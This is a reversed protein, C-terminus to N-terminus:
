MTEDLEPRAIAARCDARRRPRGSRAVVLLAALRGIREAVVGRLEDDFRVIRRGRLQLRLERDAMRARHPQHLLEFLEFDDPRVFARLRALDNSPKASSSIIAGRRPLSRSCVAPDRRSRRTLSRGLGSPRRQPRTRTANKKRRPPPRLARGRAPVTAHRAFSRQYTVAREDGPPQRPAAVHVHERRKRITSSRRTAREPTARACCRRLTTTNSTTSALRRSRGADREHARAAQVPDDPM